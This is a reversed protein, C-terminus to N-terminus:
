FELLEQRHEIGLNEPLYQGQMVLKGNQYADIEQNTLNIV